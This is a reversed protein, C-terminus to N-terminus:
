LFVCKQLKNEMFFRVKIMNTITLIWIM